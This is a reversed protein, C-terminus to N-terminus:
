GYVLATADRRNSQQQQQQESGVVFSPLLAYLYCLVAYKYIMWESESHLNKKM